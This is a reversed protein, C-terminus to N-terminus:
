VAEATTARLSRVVSEGLSRGLREAEAFTQGKVHYRPSLNGSPGNHYVTTMGPFAEAIQQREQQFLTRM